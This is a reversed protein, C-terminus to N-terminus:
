ITPDHRWPCRRRTPRSGETGAPSTMACNATSPRSGAGAAALALHVSGMANAAVKVHVQRHAPEGRIRRACQLHAPWSPLAKWLQAAFGFQQTPLWAVRRHAQAAPKRCVTSKGLDYLMTALRRRAEQARGHRLRWKLGGALRLLWDHDVSRVQSAMPRGHVVANLKAVRRRLHYCDLIPRARPLTSLQWQRHQIDGDTFVEM